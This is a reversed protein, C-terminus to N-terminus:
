FAMLIGHPRGLPRGLPRGSPRGHAYMLAWARGHACMPAHEKVCKESGGSGMWHQKFSQLAIDPPWCQIPDPPWCQIPDPPSRTMGSVFDFRPVRASNICGLIMMNQGFDGGLKSRTGYAVDFFPDEEAFMSSSHFCSFDSGKFRAYVADYM